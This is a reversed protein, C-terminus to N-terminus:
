CGYGSVGSKSWSVYELVEKNSISIVMIGHDMTGYGFGGIAEASDHTSAGANPPTFMLGTATRRWGQPIGSDMATTSASNGDAATGNGASPAPVSTPPEAVRASMSPKLKNNILSRKLDTYVAVIRDGDPMIVFDSIMVNKM